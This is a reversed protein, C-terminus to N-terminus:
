GSERFFDGRIPLAISPQLYEKLACFRRFWGRVAAGEDFGAAEEGDLCSDNDLDVVCAQVDLLPPRGAHDRPDM